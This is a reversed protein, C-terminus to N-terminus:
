AGLIAWTGVLAAYAAFWRLSGRGLTVFLVRIAAYGSIGAAVFGVGLAAGGPWAFEGSAAKLAGLVGAGAISPIALLFSFRAASDREVGALMGAAITSGSRSLGPIVAAAQAVGVAVARWAGVQFLGSARAGAGQGVRREAVVLIAATALLAVGVGRVSGFLAEVRDAAVLGVLAAPLTGLLLWGALRAEQERAPELDARGLLRPWVAVGRAAGVVEPWLAVLVAMLTGLHVVIDFLIQPTGVGLLHRALVLHGSSSVPLFETLGQVIGLIAAVGVNM